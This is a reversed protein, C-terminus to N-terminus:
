TVISFSTLHIYGNMVVFNIIIKSLKFCNKEVFYVMIRFSWFVLSWEAHGITLQFGM